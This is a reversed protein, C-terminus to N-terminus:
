KKIIKSKDLLGKVNINPNGYVFVSSKGQAYIGLNKNVFVHIDATNSSSLDAAITTLEEAELKASDKLNYTSFDSHGSLTLNSTQTLTAQSNGVQMSATLDTRDNMIFSINKSFVNLTGGADSQLTIAVDDAKINLNFRCSNYATLNLKSAEIQSMGTLKVNNKLILNEITLANITIELKKRSQIKHTTYIKLISDKVAFKVINILNSDTTISYNNSDTQYLDVELADDIQITNFPDLIQNNIIEVEKNGKIKPKKQALLTTATFIFGLIVLLKKM